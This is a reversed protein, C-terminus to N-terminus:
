LGMPVGCIMSRQRSQVSTSVIFHDIKFNASANATAAPLGSAKPCDLEDDAGFWAELWGAPEGWAPPASFLSRLPDRGSSLAKPLPVVVPAAAGLIVPLEPLEPVFPTSLLVEL